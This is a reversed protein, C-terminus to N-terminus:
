KKGIREALQNICNTKWRCCRILIKSLSSNERCHSLRLERKWCRFYRFFSLYSDTGICCFVFTLSKSFKQFVRKYLTPEIMTFVITTRQIVGLTNRRETIPKFTGSYAALLQTQKRTTRRNQLLFINVPLHKTPLLMTNFNKDFVLTRSKHLVCDTRHTNKRFPPKFYNYIWHAACYFKNINLVHNSIGFLTAPLLWSEDRSGIRCSFIKM